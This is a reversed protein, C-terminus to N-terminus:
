KRSFCSHGGVKSDRSVYNNGSLWVKIAKRRLDQLSFNVKSLSLSTSPLQLSSNWEHYQHPSVRQHQTHLRICASYCFDSNKASSFDRVTAAWLAHCLWWGSGGRGAFMPSTSLIQCHLRLHLSLSKDLM